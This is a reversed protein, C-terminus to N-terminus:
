SSMLPMTLTSKVAAFFDDFTKFNRPDGTHISVQEGTIRSKGDNLAFEVMAGMNIDAIDTYQKMKGSLNTEVCGCPNWNWAERLPIGKNQLMQIGVDNSYIAPMTLGMGISEIAKRLLSDPNKSISYTMAMNPEKFRVDETAQIMMYSLENSADNGYQDIGGCSTQVTICYGAAYQATVEDQFLSMEAVKIWLCDLLEQADDDTLIGAEKDKKYYPYLYQDLRGLNYSSANQEMFCAYEYSIISQCAEYFTRAPYEPVHRTVEAIKLLEAKRVPDDCEAAM